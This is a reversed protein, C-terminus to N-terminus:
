YSAAGKAQYMNKEQNEETGARKQRSIEAKKHTSKKEHISDSRKSKEGFAQGPKKNKKKRILTKRMSFGRRKLLEFSKAKQNV